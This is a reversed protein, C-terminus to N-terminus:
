SARKAKFMDFGIVVAMSVAAVILLQKGRM